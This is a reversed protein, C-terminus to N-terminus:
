RVPPGSTCAPNDGVTLDYERIEIKDFQLSLNKKSNGNILGDESGYTSHLSEDLTRRKLISKNLYMPLSKCRRPMCAHDLICDESNETITLPMSQNLSQDPVECSVFDTSQYRGKNVM